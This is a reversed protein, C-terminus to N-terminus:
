FCDYDICFKTDKLLWVLFCLDFFSIFAIGDDIMLMWWDVCIVFLWGCWDVFMLVFSSIWPFSVDDDFFLLVDDGDDVHILEAIWLTIWKKKYDGNGVRRFVVIFIVIM